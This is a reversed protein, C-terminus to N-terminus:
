GFPVPNKELGILRRLGLRMRRRLPVPGDPGEPGGGLMRPVPADKLEPFADLRDHRISSQAWDATHEQAVLHGQIAPAPTVQLPALRRFLASKPNFLLQDVPDVFTPSHAVLMRAAAQTLIYAAAGTHRTRLRALRRNGVGLPKPQSLWAPRLVTELKIVLADAPMWVPPMVEAFTDSLVVDDELFLASPHGADLMMQWAKRHSLSCALDGKLIMGGIAPGPGPVPDPCFDPASADIADVRILTLGAAAASNQVHAWRDPRRALNICYVPYDASGTM